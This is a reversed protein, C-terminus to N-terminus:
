WSASKRSPTAVPLGALGVKRSASSVCYTHSATSLDARVLRHSRTGFAFYPEAWFCCNSGRIERIVRIFFPNPHFSHEGPPHRRFLDHVRVFGTGMPTIRAM